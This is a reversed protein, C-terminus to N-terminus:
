VEVGQISKLHSANPPADMGRRIWGLTKLTISEFGLPVNVDLYQNYVYAESPKYTDDGLFKVMFDFYYPAPLLFEKTCDGMPDTVEKTQSYWSTEGAYRWYFHVDREAIGLTDKQLVALMNTKHKGGMWLKQRTSMITKLSVSM